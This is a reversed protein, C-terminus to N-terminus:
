YYEYYEYLSPPPPSRLYFNEQFKLTEKIEKWLVLFTSNQVFSVFNRDKENRSLPPIRGFYCNMKDQTTKQLIIINTHLFNLVGNGVLSDTSELM